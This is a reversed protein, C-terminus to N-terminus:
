IGVNASLIGHTHESPLKTSCSRSLGTLLVGAVPPQPDCICMSALCNLIGHNKKKKRKKEEGGINNNKKQISNILYYQAECVEKM